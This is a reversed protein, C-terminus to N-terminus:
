WVCNKKKTVHESKLNEAKLLFSRTLIRHTGKIGANGNVRPVSPFALSLHAATKSSNHCGLTSIVTFVTEALWQCKTVKTRMQM